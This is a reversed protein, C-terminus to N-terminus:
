SLNMSQKRARQENPGPLVHVLLGFDTSVGSNKNPVFGGASRTQFSDVRYSSSDFRLVTLILCRIIWFFTTKFIKGGFSDDKHIRRRSYSKLRRLFFARLMTMADLIM